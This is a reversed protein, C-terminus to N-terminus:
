KKYPILCLICLNKDGINKFCHESNPPVFVAYGATVEKEVGDCVALGKGELVFIEHEWDHSHNPTQGKPEIEIYRMAFNKAGDEKKILWRIFAGEAGSEEVKESAVEAYHVAKFM